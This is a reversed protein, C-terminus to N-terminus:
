ITSKVAPDDGSLYDDLRGVGFARAASELAEAEGAPATFRLVGGSELRVTVVAEGQVDAPVLTATRGEIRFTEAGAAGGLLRSLQELAAMPSGGTGGETLTVEIAGGAEDVYRRTHTTLGFVSQRTMERGDRSGLRSPFLSEIQGHHARELARRAWQLEELARPYNGEAVFEDFRQMVEELDEQADAGGPLALVAALFAAVALGSRKKM